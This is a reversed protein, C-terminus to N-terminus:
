CDMGLLQSIDRGPEADPRYSFDGRRQREALQELQFRYRIGPKDFRSHLDLRESDDVYRETQLRVALNDEAQFMYATRPMVFRFPAPAAATYQTVDVHSRYRGVPVFGQVHPIDYGPRFRPFSIAVGSRLHIHLTSRFDQHKARIGGIWRMIPAVSRQTVIRTRTVTESTWEVEVRDSESEAEGITKAHLFDAHTLDILNEISLPSSTDFRLTRQMYRPVKGDLPLFPVHPILLPDVNDPNGYWAWVYGYREIVPYRGSGGTFATTLHKSHALLDPLMEAAQAVGNERWLYYPQSHIIRRLPQASLLHSFTVPFWTDRLDYNGPNWDRRGKKPAVPPTDANMAALPMENMNMNM